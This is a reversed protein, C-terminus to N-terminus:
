SAPLDQAFLLNVVSPPVHAACPLSIRPATLWSYDPSSELTPTPSASLPAHSMLSAAPLIWLVMERSHSSGCSRCMTAQEGTWYSAGAPYLPGMPSTSVQQSAPTPTREHGMVLTMGPVLWYKTDRFVLLAQSQPRLWPRRQLSARREKPGVCASIRLEATSPIGLTVGIINQPDLPAPLGLCGRGRNERQGALVSSRPLSSDPGLATPGPLAMGVATVWCIQVM